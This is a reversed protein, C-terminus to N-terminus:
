LFHAVVLLAIVAGAGILLAKRNAKVWNEQKTIQSSVATEAAKKLDEFTSM